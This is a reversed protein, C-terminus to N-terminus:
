RPNTGVLDLLALQALRDLTRAARVGDLDAPTEEEFISPRVEDMNLKSASIRERAM